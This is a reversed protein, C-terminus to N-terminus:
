APESARLSRSPLRVVEHYLQEIRDVNRSFDHTEATRRAHASIRARTAPVALEVLAAALADVDDAMDIIRGDLGDTILESAGNTRTTIVPVGCACAELV